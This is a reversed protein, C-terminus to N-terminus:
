LWHCILLAKWQSPNRRTSFDSSIRLHWRVSDSYAPQLLRQRDVHLAPDQSVHWEAHGTPKIAHFLGSLLDAKSEMVKRRCRFEGHRWHKVARRRLSSWLRWQLRSSWSWERNHRPYDRLQYFSPKSQNRFYIYLIWTMQFSRSDSIHLLDKENKKQADMIFENNLEKNIEM